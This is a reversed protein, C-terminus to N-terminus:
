FPFAIQYRDLIAQAAPPPEGWLDAEDTYEILYGERGYHPTAVIMGAEALDAHAAVFSQLDPAAETWNYDSDDHTYWWVKGGEGDAGRELCVKDPPVGLFTVWPTAPLPERGLDMRDDEVFSMQQMHYEPLREVSYWYDVFMAESGNAFGYVERLNRPIEVGILQECREIAAPDAPPDHRLDTGSNANVAALFRKLDEIVSM